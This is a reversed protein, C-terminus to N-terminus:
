EGKHFARFNGLAVGLASVDEADMDEVDELSLVPTVALLSAMTMMMGTNTSDDQRSAVELAKLDKGKPPRLTVVTGSVPLTLVVQGKENVRVKSTM